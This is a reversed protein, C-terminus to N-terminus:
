TFTGGCGALEVLLPAPQWSADAGAQDLKVTRLPPLDAGGSFSRASGTLVSAQVAPDALARDLAWLLASRLAHGLGNVPPQNM